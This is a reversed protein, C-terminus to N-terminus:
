YSRPPASVCSAGGPRRAPRVQSHLQLLGGSVQPSAGLPARVQVTIRQYGNAASPPKRVDQPSEASQGLDVLPGRPHQFVVRPGRGSVQWSLLVVTDWVKGDDSGPRWPQASSSVRTPAIRRSAWSRVRGGASASARIAVREAIVVFPAGCSWSWSRCARRDIVATVAARQAVAVLGIPRSRPSTM